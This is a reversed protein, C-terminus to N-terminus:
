LSPKSRINELKAQKTRTSRAQRVKTTGGVGPERPQAKPSMDVAERKMVEALMETTSLASIDPKVRIEGDYDAADGIGARVLAEPVPIGFAKAFRYVNYGDPRTYNKGKIWNAITNPSVGVREAVESQQMDGIADRVLESWSERVRKDDM